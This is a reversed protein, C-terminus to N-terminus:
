VDTTELYDNTAVFCTRVKDIKKTEQLNALHIYKYRIMSYDCLNQGKSHKLAQSKLLTHMKVM